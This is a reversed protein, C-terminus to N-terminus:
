PGNGYSGLSTTVESHVLNWPKQGRRTCARGLVHLTYVLWKQVWPVAGRQQPFVMKVDFYSTNVSWYDPM